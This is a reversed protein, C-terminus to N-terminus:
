GKQLERSMIWFKSVNAQFLDAALLHMQQCIFWVIAVTQLNPDVELHFGESMDPSLVLLIKRRWGDAAWPLCCPLFFRVQLKRLLKRIEFFFSAQGQRM